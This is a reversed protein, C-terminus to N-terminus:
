SGYMVRTNPISLSAHLYTHMHTYRYVQTAYALRGPRDDPCCPLRQRDLWALPFVTEAGGREKEGERADHELSDDPCPPPPKSSQSLAPRRTYQQTYVHLVSEDSTANAPAHMNTNPRITRDTTYLVGPTARSRRGERREEKRSISVRERRM